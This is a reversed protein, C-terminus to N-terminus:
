MGQEVLKGIGRSLVYKGICVLLSLPDGKRVGRKYKFFGHQKGNVSVLLKALEFIVHIWGYFKDNFGFYNMHRQYILGSHLMVVLLDIKCCISQMQHLASIIKSTEEKYSNEKSLQSLVQCSTLRDVLIKTVKKFKLIAL